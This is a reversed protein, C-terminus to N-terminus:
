HGNAPPPPATRPQSHWARAADRQDDAEEPTRCVMRPINSGTTTEERCIKPAAGSDTGSATTNTTPGKAAPACAAFGLAM